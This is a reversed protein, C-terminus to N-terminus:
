PSPFINFFLLIHWIRRVWARWCAKRLVLGLFLFVRSLLPSYEKGLYRWIGSGDDHSYHLSFFCHVEWFHKKLFRCRPMAGFNLAPRYIDTNLKLKDRRRWHLTSLGDSQSWTSNTWMSIGSLLDDHALIWPVSENQICVWPSPNRPHLNQSRLTEEPCFTCGFEVGFHQLSLPESHTGSEPVSQKTLSGDGYFNLQFCQWSEFVTVAFRQWVLWERRTSHHASSIKCLGHIRLAEALLVFHFM